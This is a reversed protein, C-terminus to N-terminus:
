EEHIVNKQEILGIDTNKKVTIVLGKDKPMSRYKNFKNRDIEKESGSSELTSNSASQKLQKKNHSLRPRCYYQIETETPERLKDEKNRVILTCGDTNLYLPYNDIDFEGIEYVNEFKYKQLDDLYINIPNVIKYM